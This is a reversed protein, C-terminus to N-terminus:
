GTWTFIVSSNAEGLRHCTGQAECDGTPLVDWVSSVVWYLGTPGDGHPTGYLTWSLKEMSNPPINIEKIPYDYVVWTEDHIFSMGVFVRKQVAYPNSVQVNVSHWMFKSWEENPSPDTIVIPFRDTPLAPESAEEKFAQYIKYAGWGGAVFASAYGVPRYQQPIYKSLYAVGVGGLIFAGGLAFKSIDEKWDLSSVQIQQPM